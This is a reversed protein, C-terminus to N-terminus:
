RQRRLLSDCPLDAANAISMSRDRELQLCQVRFSARLLRQVKEAEDQRQEVRDLRPIVSRKFAVLTDAVPKVQNEIEKSSAFRTAFYTTLGAYLGGLLMLASAIKTVRSWTWGELIQDSERRGRHNPDRHEGSTETM